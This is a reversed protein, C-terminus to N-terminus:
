TVDNVNAATGVVSHVLRCATDVGIHAKMVFRWQNAKKTQHM